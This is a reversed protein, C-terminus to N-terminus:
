FFLLVKFCNCLKCSRFITASFQTRNCFNGFRFQLSSFIRWIKHFFKRFNEFGLSLRNSGWFIVLQPLNLEYAKWNLWRTFIRRFNHPVHLAISPFCELFKVHSRVIQMTWPAPLGRKFEPLCLSWNSTWRFRQFVWHFCCSCFFDHENVATGSKWWMTRHQQWFKEDKRNSYKSFTGFLSLIWRWCRVDRDMLDSDKLEDKRWGACCWILCWFASRYVRRFLSSVFDCFLFFRWFDFCILQTVYNYEYSFMHKHGISVSVTWIAKSFSTWVQKLNNLHKLYVLYLFNVFFITSIDAYFNTLVTRLRCNEHFPVDM